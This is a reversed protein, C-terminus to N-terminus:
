EYTPCFPFFGNLPKFDLLKTQVNNESPYFYIINIFIM